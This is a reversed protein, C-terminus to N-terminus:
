WAPWGPAPNGEGTCNAVLLPGTTNQPVQNGPADVVRIGFGGPGGANAYFIRFPIYKSLGDFPEVEFRYPAPTGCCRGAINSNRAEFNDSEANDGVWALIVDDPTEPVVSYAGPSTVEIYGRHHIVNCEFTSGARGSVGYYQIPRSAAAGSQRFGIRGSSPTLGTADPIRDQFIQQLNITRSPNSYITQCVETDREFAYIAFELGPTCQPLSVVSSSSPTASSETTSSPSDSPKSTSTISSSPEPTTKSALDSTSSLTETSSPSAEFSSPVITSISSSSPEETSTVVPEDSSSPISITISASTSITSQSFPATITTAKIGEICQCASWYATVYKCALKLVPGDDETDEVLKLPKCRGHVKEDSGKCDSKARGLLKLRHTKQLPSRVTFWTDLVGCFLKLSFGELGELIQALNLLGIDKYHKQKAWPGIPVKFKQHMVQSFGGHGRVWGDLQPGPTPDRGIDKLTRVFTQNWSHTSHDPTYSGDDSYYEVSMDQFEAWGGPNLNRFAPILGRMWCLIMFLLLSFDYEYVNKVLKPWDGISAAMYRCMIYDYKQSVWPSEVDDIEFKVNPPVWTPQIPSLDNGIIEANPFMESADFAWIGTGTGIDLIRHVKQPEVPALFLKNGIVRTILAHAMDLRDSEMEDNPLVYSGSRYAHYRRGYEMPYDLISSTLSSTYIRDDISTTDDATEGEDAELPEEGTTVDQSSSGAANMVTSPGDVSAETKEKHLSGATPSNSSTAKANLIPATEQASTAQQESTEAM